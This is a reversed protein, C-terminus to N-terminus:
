ILVSQHYVVHGLVFVLYLYLRKIEVLDTGGLEWPRAASM